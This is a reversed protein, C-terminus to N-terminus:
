AIKRNIYKLIFVLLIFIITTKNCIRKELRRLFAEDLDWPLNTAALVMVVKKEENQSQVGSLGDM